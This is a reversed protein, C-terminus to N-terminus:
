GKKNCSKCEKVSPAYVSDCKPCCWGVVMNTKDRPLELGLGGVGNAHQSAEIYDEDQFNDILIRNKPNKNKGFM